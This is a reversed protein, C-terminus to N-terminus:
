ALEKEINQKIDYKVKLSNFCGWPIIKKHQLRGVVIGSHIGMEKAFSKISEESTLNKLQENKEAPILLDSAFKDAEDELVKDNSFEKKEELFLQKKHKLIHAIEHFFAFWLHDNTKHRLSLLLLAKDTALWKTAGSMPCKAPTPAFVVAVGCKACLDILKPLFDELNEVLTLARLDGLVSQFNKKNFANCIIKTAEIEGKRLWTQITIPDRDFKDCSKFAVQYSQTQKEFSQISAVGYFKLCARVQDGKNQFKDVWGWDIMSKLPIQKLWNQEKELAIKEKEKALAERYHSEANLWFSSPYSLVKELKLATDATISAEGKILKHIHKATYGMRQAFEVQSFGVHEMDEKMSLGPPVLHLWDPKFKNVANSM